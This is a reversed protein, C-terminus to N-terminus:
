GSPEARAVRMQPSVCKPIATASSRSSYGGFREQNRLGSSKAQRALCRRQKGAYRFCNEKARRIEKGVGKVASHVAGM